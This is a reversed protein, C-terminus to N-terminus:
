PGAFEQFNSAQLLSPDFNSCLPTTYARRGKKTDKTKSNQSKVSKVVNKLANLCIKISKLSNQYIKM